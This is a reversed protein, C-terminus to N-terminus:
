GSRGPWSMYRPPWEDATTRAGLLAREISFEFLAYTEDVTFAWGAAV